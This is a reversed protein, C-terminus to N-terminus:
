AIPTSPISGGEDAQGSKLVIRTNPNLNSKCTPSGICTVSVMQKLSSPSPRDLWQMALDMQHYSLLIPQRHHLWQLPPSVNTTIITFTHLDEEDENGTSVKTWLGPILLPTATAAAFTSTSGGGDGGDGHVYYPQKTTSNLVVNADKGITKWEFFGDIPTLCTKYHSLLKAFTYKEYLTDARANFMLHSFHKATGKPLPNTKTGPKPCLDWIAQEAVICLKAVTRRTSSNTDDDPTCTSTGTHEKLGEDEGKIKSDKRFIMMSM